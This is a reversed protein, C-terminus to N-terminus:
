RGLLKPMRMLVRLNGRPRLKLKAMALRPDERGAVIDAWDEFRSRFTVDPDELRGQVARTSGNDVVIHWPETDTFDWQLKVGGNPAASTDVVRSM